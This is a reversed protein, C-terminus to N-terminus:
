STRRCSLEKKIESFLRETGTGDVLARGQKAMARRLVANNLLRAAEHGVREASVGVGLDVSTKMAAFPRNVSDHHGDISFLLAPTASAALEYKTLGNAGIALDCWLMENLLTPPSTLLAIQHQSRAVLREVEARLQASFMPGVVARIELFQPVTELGRLVDVTYGKPDSGGCSVLVRNAKPRQRRPPLNAYEPALLAYEAGELYCWRTDKVEAAPAVYPSIVIDADLKPLQRSISEEGLVDIAVLRRGISRLRSFLLPPTAAAFFGPYLLDVIVADAQLGSAQPWDVTSMSSEDLLICGLGAAIVQAEAAMNGFVLFGVDAGHKHAYTALALCRRLHGFGIANSAVTVFLIRM